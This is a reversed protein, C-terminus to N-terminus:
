SSPVSPITRFQLIVSGIRIEDGDALPMPSTIQAGRLFTGNKSRLDELVAVDQNVFICAHRRSVTPADLRIGGDSDLDRGIINPGPVLPLQEGDMILWCFTSSDSLDNGHRIIGSDTSVGVIASDGSFSYGFRQASRIFRPQQASDGLAERVEAIVSPLDTESPRTGPWLRERLEITSMARPRADILIKLLEFAHPSLPVDQRGRRLRRSDADFTLDGLQLKVVRVGFRPGFM